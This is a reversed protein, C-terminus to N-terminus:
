KLSELFAVVDVLEQASLAASLGDPMLSTGTERREIIDKVDVVTVNGGSDVLELRESTESRIFGSLLGEISSDIIWVKYEHSIAASPNLISELLADRGLKEGIVSLEPGVPQGDGNIVHCRACDAGEGSFFLAKGNAADGRMALLTALPPLAEGVRTEPRPLVDVAMLRIDEYRSRHLRDAAVLELDKPLDGREQLDLVVLSGAKSLSLLSVAERRADLPHDANAAFDGLTKVTPTGPVAASTKLAQRAVNADAHNTFEFVAALVEPREIRRTRRVLPELAQLTTLLSAPDNSDLQLAKILHPAFERRETDSVFEFVAPRMEGNDMSAALYDDIDAARLTSRWPRGMDRSLLHLATRQLEIPADANLQAAIDTGAEDTGIADLAWMAKKRLEMSLNSDNAATRALDSASEPHLQIVFDAIVDDWNGGHSKLLASFAWDERGKCAIGIAERYFRDHGDHQEALAIIWDNMWPKHDTRALEILLQRRVQPSEDNKLWAADQLSEIDVSALARVAQTRVAAQEDRTSELLLSVGRDGAEPLLWAARARAYRNNSTLISRITSLDGNKIRDSLAEYALFRRAQNSSTLANSLGAGTALDLAPVNYDGAAPALRYIRGREHDAMRHGGVGPDYWDAVFVSGDPAACVDVPRFWSDAEASLVEVIESKFGAAQNEYPYSRVVGPGADAHLLTGRLPDILGGDYFLLGCPSGFGTRVMKPVVGPRDENWHVADLKQNGARRPWYGYHGGEMVYNIRCNQNGDDDNDSIFVNGFADVAPEYPNRMGQALLELRNGELDTRLVTAAMVPADKGAHIRNGEKDTVDLGRDGNSMYLKGDPGFSIGHIAHDHDVGGFGTLIVIKEDAVGDGDTDRLYFLDPAQCVYVRDGLVAIGMPSQLSPDQYFTTAKDCIGDGDTDELVRIRDGEPRTEKQNFLRYNAAECVWVRGQADVDIMTPNVLDPEAAFLSVELGPLTRLQAFSEEPSLQAHALPSFLLAFVPLVFAYIWRM